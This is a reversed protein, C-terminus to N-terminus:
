RKGHWPRRGHKKERRALEPGGLREAQREANRAAKREIAVSRGKRDTIQGSKTHSKRKGDDQLPRAVARSPHRVSGKRNNKAAV